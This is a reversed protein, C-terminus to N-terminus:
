QVSCVQIDDKNENEDTDKLYNRSLADAVYLEKGRKYKVTINYKQIRLLMKQLRLPTEALPNKMITELPKHDTEVEFARGFLYQYFKDCGFIITAM